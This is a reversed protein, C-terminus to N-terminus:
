LSARSSCDATGRKTPARKTNTGRGGKELLVCQASSDWGMTQPLSNRMTLICRPTTGNGQLLSRCRCTLLSTASSEVATRDLM